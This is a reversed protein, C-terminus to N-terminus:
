RYGLNLMLLSRVSEAINTEENYAPAIVSIPPTLPSRMLRRLDRRQKERLARRTERFGLVMLVLYQTNIAFFFCLVFIAYARALQARPPGM